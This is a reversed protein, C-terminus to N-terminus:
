FKSASLNPTRFDTSVGIRKKQKKRKIVKVISETARSVNLYTMQALHTGDYKRKDIKDLVVFPIIM